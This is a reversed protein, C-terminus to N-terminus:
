VIVAMVLGLCAPPLDMLSTIPGQALWIAAFAVAVCPGVIALRTWFVKRLSATRLFEDRGFRIVSASTWSVSFIVAYQAVALFLTLVGYRDAGLLRSVVAVSVAGTLLSASQGAQLSILSSWASGTTAPVGTMERRSM